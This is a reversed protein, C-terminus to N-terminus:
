DAGREGELGNVVLVTVELGHRHSREIEEQIRLRFYWDVYLGSEEEHIALSRSRARWLEGESARAMVVRQDADRRAVIAVASLVAASIVVAVALNLGIALALDSGGALIAVATTALPAVVLLIQLARERLLPIVATATEDRHM